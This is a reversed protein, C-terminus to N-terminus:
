SEKDALAKTLYKLKITEQAAEKLNNSNFLSELKKRSDDIMSSFIVEKGEIEAERLEMMELLLEQSPKIKSEDTNVELNQLKLLYEARSLDNKLINYGDNVMSSLKAAAMKEAEGNLNDPHTKQQLALYNNELEEASINFKQNLNFLNFYNM